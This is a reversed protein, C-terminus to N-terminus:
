KGMYERYALINYYLAIILIGAGIWDNFVISEITTISLLVALISLKNKM